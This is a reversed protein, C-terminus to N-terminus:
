TTHNEQGLLKFLEIGAKTGFLGGVVGLGIKTFLNVFPHFEKIYDGLYFGTATALIAFGAIGLFDTKNHKTTTELNM